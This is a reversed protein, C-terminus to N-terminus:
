DFFVNTPQLTSIPIILVFSSNSSASTASAFNIISCIEDFEAKAIKSQVYKSGQLKSIYELKDIRIHEVINENNFSAGYVVGNNNIINQALLTFIGGSSSKLREDENKNYMAYGFPYKNNSSNNVNLKKKLIPCAKKCAGCNICKEENIVPILFGKEDHTITIADFKCANYCAMCGCCAFDRMDVSNM